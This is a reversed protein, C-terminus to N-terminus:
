PKVILKELESVIPTVYVTNQNEYLVFGPKAGSPKRVNKRLTYDVPVNQSNKAKSFYAAFQAALQIEEPELHAKDTKILVHSGPQKQVHLWLDKSRGIKFTVFDNQLNNKGIYITTEKNLRVIYPKSTTGTPKNKKPAHLLAISYLEQKIEALEAITTVTELSVELARLYQLYEGTQALQGDILQLARKAKNYRKYYNNANHLASLRPDLDICLQRDGYIDMCTYEAANPVIDYIYVMLNDAINKFDQAAQAASLDRQLAELKREQRETENAIIKGYLKNEAPQEPVLDKFYLIAANIDAFVKATIDVNHALSRLKFLSLALFRGGKAYAYIENAAHIQGAIQACVKYLLETDNDDVDQAAKDCVGARFLIEQAIINGIGQIKGTLIKSLKSNPAAKFMSDLQTVSVQELNLAANKQPPLVYERNPQIQRFSNDKIGIHKIAQLIRNGDLLIINSNKGTLEVCLTKTVFTNAFGISDIQINLIRDLGYQEVATIRGQELHKRLLMCFATPVPLHQPAQNAIYICAGAADLVLYFNVKNYIHLCLANQNLQYIKDIRGGLLSRELETRFKGLTIADINM